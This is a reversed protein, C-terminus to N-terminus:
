GATTCRGQHSQCWQQFLKVNAQHGAEDDAFRTEGTDFNVTTFFLWNGPTPDLAAEIAAQGPASIPTPPLGKRKYTNYPSNSERNQPTTTNANLKLGYILTSDLQLDIGKDLRNYLVRAVKPRDEPRRVEKEIISAVILVQYPSRGLRKAGADLGVEDAVQDYRATMLRLVSGATVDQPLEYTDPFLFGEPNNRAYSPLGLQQPKKLAAQYQAASIKTEKALVAVQSSLRLGEPVTVENRVRYEAPDLLIALARAAPIQTRMLYSGAQVSSAETSAKVARDFAKTSRVVDKDKLITGIETLTSGDPITVTINATGKVDTYDPVEGFSSLYGSAKDYVLFAGGGLVLLAVLVALCGKGRAAIEKGPHPKREPDLLQQTM